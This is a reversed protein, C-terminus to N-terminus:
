WWRIGGDKWDDHIGGISVLMGCAFMAFVVISTSIEPAIAAVGCALGGLLMATCRMVVGFRTMPWTRYPRYRGRRGSNWQPREDIPKWYNRVHIAAWVLLIPSAIGTIAPPFPTYSGGTGSAGIAFLLDPM